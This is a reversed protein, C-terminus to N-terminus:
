GAPLFDIPYLITTKPVGDKPGFNFKEVRDVIQAVLEPSALDTSEVKCLSVEGGPEITIKLLIKGRLTPDKRLEKNYIRYLTAKYRDFVIQIEEDTRSAGPGDSVRRGGEEALGAVSSEVRAFGVGGIRDGTGGGGVNRSVTANGIGGSSGKGQMAVLSRQPRAQGAARPADKSLRAQSGLKAVPTEDMLESFTNKFALVGTSEAKKRAAKTEAVASPVKPAEKEPTKKTKDPKKEEPEPKVEEVIKEPVPEPKPPEKKVLMALREPIEVVSSYRDVVPVTVWHILSGFAFCLLLALLMSRRFHKESESDSNWPMIIPRSPVPSIEREIVLEEKRREERAYADHVEEHLDELEFRRTEIRAKLSKQIEEFGRIEEAFKSIRERLRGLHGSRDGIQPLENWFLEEAELETLKDLATCVDQLAEFRQKDLSFTELEAEAHALDGELTAIIGRVQEIRANLPELEQLLPSTDVSDM